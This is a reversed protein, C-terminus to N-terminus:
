APNDSTLRLTLGHGLVVNQGGLPGFLGIGVGEAPCQPWPDPEVQQDAVDLRRCSELGLHQVGHDGVPVAVERDQPGGFRGTSSDPHQVAVAAVAVMREAANGFGGFSAAGPSFQAEIAAIGILSLRHRPRDAAHNQSNSGVLRM